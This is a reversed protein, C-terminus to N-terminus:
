KLLLSDLVSKVSSYPLSGKLSSKKGDKTIIISYPTARGDSDVANNYDDGVRQAHRREDFCTQFASRDLGVYEAIDPLLALDLNNNSPTIEFIRDLYKWFSDNGGLEAACEMAEAEPIAKPHIQHLPFSRYVWAVQGDYDTVIQHLVFHFQKCFSCETDSYEVIKIPADPNGLIHDTAASVPRVNDISPTPRENQMANANESDVKPTTTNNSSYVIAGSILAGTVIISVALISANYKM